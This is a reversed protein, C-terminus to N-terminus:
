PGKSGGVRTSTTIRRGIVLVTWRSIFLVSSLPLVDDVHLQKTSESIFLFYVEHFVKPCTANCIVVSCQIHLNSKDPFKFAPFTSYFVKQKGGERGGNSSSSPLASSGLYHHNHLEEFDPM